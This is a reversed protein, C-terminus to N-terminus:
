DNQGKKPRENLIALVRRTRDRREEKSVPKAASVLCAVLESLRLADASGRILDALEAQALRLWVARAEARRGEADLSLAHLTGVRDGM